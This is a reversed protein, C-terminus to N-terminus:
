VVRVGRIAEFTLRPGRGREIMRVDAPNVVDAVVLPLAIDDHLQTLPHPPTV